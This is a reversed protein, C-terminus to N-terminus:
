GARPAIATLARGAAAQWGEPAHDRLLDRVTAASPLADGAGEVTCAAAGCANALLASAASDLGRLQGAIFGADFADGAGTTDIVTVAFGPVALCAGGDPEVVECGRAGCKRVIWHRPLADFPTMDSPMVISTREVLTTLAQLRMRVPAMGVDISVPRGRAAFQATAALAAANASPSMVNYSTLHLWRAAAIAPAQLDRGDLLRNAGAGGLMTRQGDPTVAIYAIATTQGEARQVWRTSLGSAAMRELAFDGLMDGGVCGLMAVDLGLRALMVATNLSTGGLRVVTELSQADGGPPPYSELRSVIDVVIDGLVVVESM